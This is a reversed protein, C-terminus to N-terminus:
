RPRCRMIAVIEIEAARRRERDGALAVAFDGEARQLGAEVDFIAAKRDAEGPVTRVLSIL